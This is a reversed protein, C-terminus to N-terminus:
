QLAISPWRIAKLTLRVFPSPVSVTLQSVADYASDRLFQPIPLALSGLVPFPLQLYQAIKLIADSKIYSADEEVLVISSIDDPSRGSRQLLQKGANSQLAAFRLKGDKDFNLATNVGGNCRCWYAIAFHTAIVCTVFTEKIGCAPVCCFRESYLHRGLGEPFALEFGQADHASLPVKYPSVLRCKEVRM